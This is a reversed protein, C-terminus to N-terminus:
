KTNNKRLLLLLVSFGVFGTGTIMLRIMFDNAVKGVVFVSVPGNAAGIVPLTIRGSKFKLLIGCALGVIGIGGAIGALWNKMTRDERSILRKYMKSGIEIIKLLYDQHVAERIEM